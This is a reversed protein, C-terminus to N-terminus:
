ECPNATYATGPTCIAERGNGIHDTYFQSFAESDFCDATLAFGWASVGWRTALEPYPVLVVRRETGCLPDEPLGAIFAEVESVEDACGEPCNYWFVVAGHELAHVVFGAALPFDYRQFAPWIAYHSGGSPPNTDYTAPSCQLLHSFETPPSEVTQVNCDGTGNGSGGTGGSSTGGVPADGGAGGANPAGGNGGPAGGGTSGAEGGAGAPDDDDSGCACVVLVLVLVLGIVRALGARSRALPAASAESFLM